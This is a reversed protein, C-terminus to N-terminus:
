EREKLRRLFKNAQETHAPFALEREEWMVDLALVEHNPKFQKQLLDVSKIHLKSTCFILMTDKNTSSCVDWIDYHEQHTDLGIEESVERVAAEQWTEKDDVYGGTLAWQDKKPEIGRQQILLGFREGGWDYWGNVPQMVVVVPIPNKFSDNYCSFCKRPWIVQETFKTGCYSCCSDRKFDESM